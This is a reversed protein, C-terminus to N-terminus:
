GVREVRAKVWLEPWILESCILPVIVFPASGLKLVLFEGTGLALQPGGSNEPGSAYRKARFFIKLNTATRVAVLMFNVYTGPAAYPVDSVGGHQAVLARYEEPSLGEVGGIVVLPEPDSEVTGILEAVADHPIVLEPILALHAHVTRAREVLSLCAQRARDPDEVIYRGGASTTEERLACDGQLAVLKVDHALPFGLEEVLWM